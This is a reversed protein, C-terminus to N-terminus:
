VSVGPRIFGSCTAPCVSIRLGEGFLPADTEIDDPSVGELNLTSIILNKIELDLSQM